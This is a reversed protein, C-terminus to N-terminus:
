LNISNTSNLSNMFLSHQPCQHIRSFAFDLALASPSPAVFFSLLNAAEFTVLMSIFFPPPLLV